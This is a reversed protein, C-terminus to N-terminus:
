GQTVSKPTPNDIDYGIVDYKKKSLYDSVWKGMKGGAGVIAVKKDM